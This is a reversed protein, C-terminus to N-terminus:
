SGGSCESGAACTEVVGGFTGDSNCSVVNAGQCANVGPTCDVCGGLNANCSTACSEVVVWEGGRCEQYQVGVCQHGSGTCPQGTNADPKDVTGLTAADSRFYRRAIPRALEALREAFAKFESLDNM